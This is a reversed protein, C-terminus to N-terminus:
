TNGHGFRITQNHPGGASFQILQTTVGGANCLPVLDIPPDLLSVLARAKAELISFRFLAKGRNAFIEGDRTNLRLSVFAPWLSGAPGAEDKWCALRWVSGTAIPAPAHSLVKPAGVGPSSIKRHGGDRQVNLSPEFLPPGRPKEARLLWGSCLFLPRFVPGLNGRGCFGFSFGAQSLCCSRHRCRGRSRPTRLGAGL